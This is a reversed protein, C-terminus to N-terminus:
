AEGHVGGCDVTVNEDESLEYEGPLIMKTKFYGKLFVRAPVPLKSQLTVVNGCFSCPLSLRVIEGELVLRM